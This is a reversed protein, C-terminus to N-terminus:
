ATACASCAALMKRDVPVGKYSACAMARSVRALSAGPAGTDSVVTIHASYSYPSLVVKVHCRSTDSAARFTVQIEPFATSMGLSAFYNASGLTLRYIGQSFPPCSWDSVRGDAGTSASAVTVWESAGARDLRAPVADAIQGYIGDMVEAAILTM